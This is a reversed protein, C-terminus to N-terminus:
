QKGILQELRKRVEAKVREMVCDVDIGNEQECGLFKYIENKDPDLANMKEELVQLGESKVMKGKRLVVEACKKVVYCAGTEM